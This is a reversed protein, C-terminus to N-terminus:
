VRNASGARGGNPWRRISGLLNAACLSFTAGLDRSVEPVRAYREAWDAPRETLADAMGHLHISTVTPPQAGPEFFAAELVEGAAPRLSLTGALPVGDGPVIARRAQGAGTAQLIPM